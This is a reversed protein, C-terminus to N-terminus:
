TTYPSQNKLFHMNNKIM